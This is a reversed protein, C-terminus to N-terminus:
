EGVNRQGFLEEQIIRRRKNRTFQIKSYVLAMGFLDVSGITCSSPSSTGRNRVRRRYCAVSHTDPFHFFEEQLQVSPADFYHIVILSHEDSVLIQSCGPPHFTNGLVQCNVPGTLIREWNSRRKNVKRKGKFLFEVPHTVPILSGSNSHSPTQFLPSRRFLFVHLLIINSVM